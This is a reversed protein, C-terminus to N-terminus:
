RRASSLDHGAEADEPAVIDALWDVPNLGNERLFALYRACLKIRNADFADPDFRSWTLSVLRDRSVGDIVEAAFVHPIQMTRCMETTRADHAICLAPVGAQLALVTGHIRTGVILDFQRYHELWHSIDFFVRGHARSWQIFQAMPMGPRVFDRCCRLADESMRDAEGRGLMVMELPDQGIYSGSCDGVLGALSAELRALRKWGYHGGVVAIRGPPRMRDTIERGLRRGPNLFLSPCGLVEAHEALGYHDLVRLSFTGRVGINARRGPARDAIARIWGLTGESVEPVLSEDPGQAGLGVMVLRVTLDSWRRALGSFDTHRGLQNAAPIVATRGMRNIRATPVSWDLVAVNGAVGGLHEHVARAFALNGTNGVQRYLTATPSFASEVRPPLGLVFADSM